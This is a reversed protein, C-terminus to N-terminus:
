GCGTSSRSWQLLWIMHATEWSYAEFSMLLPDCHYAPPYALSPVTAFIPMWPLLMLSDQGVASMDHWPQQM